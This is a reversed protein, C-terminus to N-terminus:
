IASYKRLGRLLNQGYQSESFPNYVWICGALEGTGLLNIYEKYDIPLSTGLATEIEKWDKDMRAETAKEPPIISELLTSLAMM